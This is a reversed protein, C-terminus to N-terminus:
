SNITGRNFKIIWQDICVEETCRSVSESKSYTYKAERMHFSGDHKALCIEVHNDSNKPNRVLLTFLPFSTAFTAVFKTEVTM